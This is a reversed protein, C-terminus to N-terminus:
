FKGGDLHKAVEAMKLSTRIYQACNRLTYFCLMSSVAPNKSFHAIIKVVEHKYINLAFTESPNPELPAVIRIGM